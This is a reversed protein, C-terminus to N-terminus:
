SGNYKSSPAMERYTQMALLMMLVESRDIAPKFQNYVTNTIELNTANSELYEKALSKTIEYIGM